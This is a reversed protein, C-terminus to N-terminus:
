YRSFTTALFHSTCTSDFIGSGIVKLSWQSRQLYAFIVCSQSGFFGFIKHQNGMSTSTTKHAMEAIKFRDVALILLTKVYDVPYIIRDTRTYIGQLSHQFESIYCGM